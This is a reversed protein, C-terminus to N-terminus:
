PSLPALILTKKTQNQRKPVSARYQTKKKKKSLCLIAKPKNQKQDTFQLRYLSDWYIPSQNERYERCRRSRPYTQNRIRHQNKKKKKSFGHTPKSQQAQWPSPKGHAQNQKLKKKKKESKLEIKKPSKKKKKAQINFM